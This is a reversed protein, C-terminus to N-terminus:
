DRMESAGETRPQPPAAHQQEWAAINRQWQQWAVHALELGTILAPVVEAPVYLRGEDDRLVVDGERADLDIAIEGAEIAPMTPLPYTAIEALQADTLHEIAPFERRLTASDWGAALCGIITAAFVRTGRIVPAGHCVASDRIVLPKTM